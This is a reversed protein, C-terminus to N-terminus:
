PHESDDMDATFKKRLESIYEEKERLKTVIFEATDTSWYASITRDFDTGSEESKAFRPRIHTLYLNYLGNPCDLASLFWYTGIEWGKRMIHAHPIDGHGLSREEIEFAEMFEAHVSSYAELDEGDLGDLSCSTLWYPPHQM